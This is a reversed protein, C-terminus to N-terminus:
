AARWGIFGCNNQVSWGRALASATGRVALRPRFARPLLFSPPNPSPTVRWARYALSWNNGRAKLCMELFRAHRWRCFSWDLRALPFSLNKPTLDVRVCGSRACRGSGLRSWRSRWSRGVAALLFFGISRGWGLTWVVRRATLRRQSICRLGLGSGKPNPRSPRKSSARHPRTQARNVM